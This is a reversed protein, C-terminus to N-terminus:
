MRPRAAATGVRHGGSERELDARQETLQRAVFSAVADLADCAQQLRVDTGLASLERRIALLDVRTKILARRTRLADESKMLLLSMREGQRRQAVQGLPHLRRGVDGM